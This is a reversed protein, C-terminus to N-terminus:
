RRDARFHSINQELLPPWRHFRSAQETRNCKGNQNENRRKKSLGAPFFGFNHNARDRAVGFDNSRVHSARPDGNAIDGGSFNQRLTNLLTPRAIRVQDHFFGPGAPHRDVIGGICGPEKGHQMQFLRGDHFYRRLPRKAIRLGRLARRLSKKQHRAFIHQAFSNKQLNM